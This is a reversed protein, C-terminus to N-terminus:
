IPRHIVKRSHRADTCNIGEVCEQVFEEMKQSMWRPFEQQTNYWAILNKTLFFITPITFAPRVEEIDPDNTGSFTAEIEAPDYQPVFVLGHVFRPPPLSATLDRSKFIIYPMYVVKTMRRVHTIVYGKYDQSAYFIRLGRKRHQSFLDRLWYPTLSWDEAPLINAIEDIFVDCDHIMHAKKDKFCNARHCFKLDSAENWYKVDLMFEKKPPLVHANTLVYRDPLDPYQRRRRPYEKTLFYRILWAQFLSKGGGPRAITGYIGIEKM